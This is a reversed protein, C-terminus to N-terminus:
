KVLAIKEVTNKNGSNLRLFYNGSPLQSIEFTFEQDGINQNENFLTKVIKGNLDVLEAVVKGSEKLQYQVTAISNVPNPFVKLNFNEAIPKKTSVIEEELLDRQFAGNGHTAARLKRNVPSIKLDFVMTADYLGEMYPEWNYGGDISAFVGLDNGVYVNNPFLPDVIVANTPVDPLGISIDEWSVGYDETKFVHGTGFGSFTIYAIAENTPDVTMDMPFRDPLNETINTWTDGGDTTVFVNGKTGGFLTTPATAAYVVNSNQASIAMSLIPNGDLPNGNNTADWFSGGNQTKYVRSRGAYLMESGDKAIVYPAIFVTSENNSPPTAGFFSQAKNTSKQISLNQYSVYVISDNETNIASWSGDGGLVRTWIVGGQWHISGNDQLGGICFLSDQHSNSFGNYFQVSQYGGNCSHFTQGNDLSRHVGGDSAVYFINSNTPHYIVDHCDSHVFQPGGDPGELPPTDIGLGGNSVQQLNTGGTTSKWVEIGVVAVVDPNDPSVAVDHGFWGQWKSYDTTSQISWNDGFDNSKCLWSAGNGSSFGNGISAYIIDANSPAAELLIKGEFQTPLSSEIKTWSQGGNTTKYIGFGTSAFNGHAAVVIDDNDPHILLSTGMVVDNVQLWTTGADTSKYVGDTTSAYVVNPDQPSVKVAWVGQNQDYSWDLSKTWNQGGDISKLIGIGYSGRTSRYAAGTGSQVYNYVEGTGIYMTMSDSPNFTICSVGLVPYGTPVYDWAQAGVGASYSRWLGGSASGAFMTNPNQPNFALALTRGGHNKPGMTEWPETLNNRQYVANQM